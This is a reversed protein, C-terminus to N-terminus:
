TFFQSPSRTKSKRFSLGTNNLKPEGRDNVQLLGYHLMNLLM